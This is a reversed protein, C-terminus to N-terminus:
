EDRSGREDWIHTVPSKYSEDFDYDVTHEDIRKASYKAIYIKVYSGNPASFRADRTKSLIDNYASLAEKESNFMANTYKNIEPTIQSFDPQGTATSGRLSASTAVKYYPAPVDSGEKECSVATFVLLAASLLLIFKKMIM